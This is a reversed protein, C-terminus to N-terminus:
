GAVGDPEDVGTQARGVELERDDVADRGVGASPPVQVGSSREAVLRVVVGLPPGGLDLARRWGVVVVEVSAVDSAVEGSPLLTGDPRSARCCTRAWESANLVRRRTLAALERNFRKPTELHPMHGVGKYWSAEATPCTALIHEAMAPLVVSDARGQTVLVPVDLAGLVDDFDLERAALNARIRAPVVVNWCM